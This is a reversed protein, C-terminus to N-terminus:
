KNLIMKQTQIYDGAALRYFYVGSTLNFKESLFIFKHVGAVKIEDVLTAIKEGMVNFIELTVKTDFPVQYTIETSPNFPNPFNQALYFKQPNDIEVVENIEYYKFSGNLDIQKIRYNYTDVSLNNDYFNYVTNQLATGKGSLFGIKQWDQSSSKREIEFGYNNTESITNWTLTINNGSKSYTFSGLEVPIVMEPDFESILNFNFGSVITRVLTGNTGNIEYVGVSNTTLFNGNPLKWLGRNGTIGKLTDVIIGDSNYIRIGSGAGSFECIAVKGNELNIMQQPFNLASDIFNGKYTGDEKNYITVDNVGNSNSLFLENERFLLCYPSSINTSAFSNIFEGSSNFQQITNALTGSSNTVLLNGNDRFVMDRINDLIANNVGGAPAFITIYAGSTDFLQVADSVQDAVLIRERSLQLVKRPTQLMPSSYPIFATDVLDGTNYDFAFVNRKASTMCPILLLKNSYNRKSIIINEGTNDIVSGDAYTVRANSFNFMGQLDDFYASFGNNFPHLFDTIVTYLVKGNEVSHAEIIATKPIYIEVPLNQSEALKLADLQISPNTEKALLQRDFDTRSQSFLITSFFLVLFLLLFNRM